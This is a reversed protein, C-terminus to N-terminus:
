IHILSLYMGLWSGGVALAWFLLVVFGVWALFAWRPTASPTTPPSEM